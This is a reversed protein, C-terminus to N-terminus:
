GAVTDNAVPKPEQDKLALVACRECTREDGPLTDSTRANEPAMRGCRTGLRGSRYTIGAVHWSQILVYSM